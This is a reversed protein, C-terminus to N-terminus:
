IGYPILSEAYGPFQPLFYIVSLFFLLFLLLSRLLLLTPLLRQAPPHHRLLRRLLAFAGLALLALALYSADSIALFVNYFPLKVAGTLLHWLKQRGVLIEAFGVLSLLSLTLVSLAHLFLRLLLPRTKRAAPSPLLARLLACLLIPM